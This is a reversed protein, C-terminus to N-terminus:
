LQIQARVHIQNILYAATFSVQAVCVEPNEAECYVKPPGYATIIGRDLLEGLLVTIQSAVASLTQASNRAGKLLAALSRRLAKMVYDIILVSNIPSFSRNPSGELTTSTTIVRVAEVGAGSRCLPTVGAALLADTQAYTPGAVTALGALEQGTLSVGPDEMVAVAACLALAGWFPSGEGGGDPVPSGYSLVVRPSDVAQALPAADAYTGCGAFAVLERQDGSQREAFAKVALLVPQSASEVALLELEGSQALAEMAATYAGADADARVSYVWFEQLGAGFLLAAARAAPTGGPLTDGRQIKRPQEGTLGFSGVAGVAMAARAGTYSPTITYSSYVGPRYSSLSM